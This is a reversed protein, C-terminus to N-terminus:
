NPESKTKLVAGALDKDHSVHNAKGESEFWIEEFANNWRKCISVNEM